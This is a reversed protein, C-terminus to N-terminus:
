NESFILQKKGTQLSHNLLKKSRKEAIIDAVRKQPTVIEGNHKLVTPFSEEAKNKSIEKWKLKHNKLKNKM